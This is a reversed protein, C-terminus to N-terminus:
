ILRQASEKEYREWMSPLERAMLEYRDANEGKITIETVKPKGPQSDPKKKDKVTNGKPASEPIYNTNPLQPKYSASVFSPLLTPAPPGMFGDTKHASMSSNPVTPPQFGAGYPKPSMGANKMGNLAPYPQSATNAKALAGAGQQPATAKTGSINGKGAGAALSGFTGKIMDQWSNAGPKNKGGLLNNQKLGTNANDTKAKDTLINKDYRDKGNPTAEKGRGTTKATTSGGKLTTGGAGGAKDRGTGLGPEATNLFEMITSSITKAATATATKSPLNINPLKIESKLKPPLPPGILKLTSPNKGGLVNKQYFSDKDPTTKGVHENRTKGDYILSYKPTTTGDGTLLHFKFGIQELETNLPMYNESILDTKKMIKRRKVDARKYSIEWARYLPDRPIGLMELEKISLYYDKDEKKVIITNPLPMYNFNPNNFLNSEADVKEKAIIGDNGQGINIINKIKKFDRTSYFIGKNSTYIVSVFDNYFRLENPYKSASFFNIKKIPSDSNPEFYNISDLGSIIGLEKALLSFSILNVESNLTIIKGNEDRYYDGFLDKTKVFLSSCFFDPLNATLGKGNLIEFPLMPEVKNNKNRYIPIYNIKFSKKFSSIAGPSINFKYKGDTCELSIDSVNIWYSPNSSIKKHGFKSGFEVLTFASDFPKKSEGLFGLHPLDNPYIKDTSLDNYNGAFSAYQNTFSNFPFSLVLKKNEVGYKWPPLGQSYKLTDDVLSDHLYKFVEKRSANSPVDLKKQIGNTNIQIEYHLHPWGDTNGTAGMWGVIEGKNIQTNVTLSDKYKSLHSYRTYIFAEKNDYTKGHHEIFVNIGHSNWTMNNDTKRIKGSESAYIPDGSGKPDFDNIDIAGHIDNGRKAIHTNMVRGIYPWIFSLGYKEEEGNLIGM